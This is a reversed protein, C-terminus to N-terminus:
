SGVALTFPAPYLAKYHVIILNVKLSMMYDGEALITEVANAIDNRKASIVM